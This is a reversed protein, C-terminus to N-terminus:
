RRSVAAACTRPGPPPVSGPPCFYPREVGQADMCLPEGAYRGRARNLSCRPPDDLITRPFAGGCGSSAYPVCAAYAPDCLAGADCRRMATYHMSLGSRPAPSFAHAGLVAAVDLAMLAGESDLGLRQEFSDGEREADRRRVIQIHRPKLFTAGHLLDIRGASQVPFV